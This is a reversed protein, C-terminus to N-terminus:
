RPPAPLAADAHAGDPPPSGAHRRLWGRTAAIVTPGPPRGIRDAALRDVAASTIVTPVAALQPREVRFVFAWSTTGSTHGFHAVPALGVRAGHHELWIALGVPGFTHPGTLVLYDADRLRRELNARPMEEYSGGRADIWLARNSIPPRSTRDFRLRRVSADGGLRAWMQVNFRFTTLVAPEGPLSSFFRGLDVDLDAGKVPEITTRSQTLVVPILALGLVVAAVLAALPWAVRRTRRRIADITDAAGVGLAVTSLLAIPVFQRLGYGANWAIVGAPVFALGALVLVRARPDRRRGIAVVLWAIACAAILLRASLNLDWGRQITSNSARRLGEFPFIEGSVVLVTVFWWGVTVAYASVYRLCLRRWQGPPVTGLFALPLVILPASTEKILLTLGAVVGGVLMRRPSPTGVVLLLVMLAFILAVEVRTTSATRWLESTCLIALAAAIAGTGRALRFALLVALALAATALAWGLLRPGTFPDGGVLRSAGGVMLPYVWSRITFPLGNIGLPARGSWLERGVGIYAADDPAVPVFGLTLVRAFSVAVIASIAVGAGIAHGRGSRRSDRGTGVAGSGV